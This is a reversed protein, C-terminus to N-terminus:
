VNMGGMSAPPALYRQVRRVPPRVLKYRQKSPGKLSTQGFDDGLIDEETVTTLDDLTGDEDTDIIDRDIDVSILDDTDADTDVKFLDSIGDNSQKPADPAGVWVIKGGGPQEEIGEVADIEAEERLPPYFKQSSESTTM